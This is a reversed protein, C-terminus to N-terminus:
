RILQWDIRTAQPSADSFAVTFGEALKEKIWAKTEWYPAVTISYVADPEATAFRVKLEKAGAPVPVDIGRLNNAAVVTGSLGTQRTVSHGNLCLNQGELMFDGNDPRAYLRSQGKATTWVIDQVSQNPQSFMIAGWRTPGGFVLGYTTSAGIAIGADFEPNDDKQKKMIEDMPVGHYQGSISLGSGMRVQGLNVVEFGHGRILPPFSHFTRTRYSTPQWPTPGPPQTIPDGPEFATDAHEFPALRLRRPGDPSLHGSGLAQRVDTVWSGPAIIYSLEARKDDAYTYSDHRFFMVGGNRHNGWWVAEVGLSLHGDARKQLGTIRYWRYLPHAVIQGRGATEGPLYCEKPDTIAIFKGIVAEDWPVDQTGIIPLTEKLQHFYYGNQMVFVKGATIWKKPNMNVIPRSTGLKYHREAGAVAYTLEGRQPDWKEVQGWFPNADFEPEANYLVMGEDGGASMGSGQYSLTCSIGFSDGSNYCTRDVSLSGSQDDCNHIDKINLAGLWHKNYVYTGKAIDHQADAVFYPDHGDLGLAKIAGSCVHKGDAAPANWWNGVQYGRLSPFYFRANPGAKVDRELQSSISNVGGQVWNEINVTYGGGQGAIDNNINRQFLFCGGSLNSIGNQGESPVVWRRIGGRHDEVYVGAKTKPDQTQEPVIQWFDAPADHPIVVTGGGQGILAQAAKELTARAEAVTKYPGFESLLRRNIAADLTARDSGAPKGGPAEAAQGGPVTVLLGLGAVIRWVTQRSM